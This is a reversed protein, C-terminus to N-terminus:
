FGGGGTVDRLIIENNFPPTAPGSTSATIGTPARADSAVSPSVPDQRDAVCAMLLATLALMPVATPVRMSEGRAPPVARSVRRRTFSHALCPPRPLWYPM